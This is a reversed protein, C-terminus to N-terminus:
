PAVAQVRLYRRPNATVTTADRFELKSATNTLIVLNPTGSWTSMESSIQPTLTVDIPNASRLITATCYNNVRAVTILPGANGTLPLTGTAYELLNTRGDRDPDATDGAIAANNANIGFNTFKWQQLPRDALTITLPTPSGNLYAGALTGPSLLITEPGEALADALPTITVNATASGAAFTVTGLTAYDSGNTATGAITLNMTLPAGVLNGASRTLTASAPNLLWEAAALDTSAITVTPVFEDAGLDIVSEAIRPLADIEQEAVSSLTAPDGTNRAPSSALLHLDPTAVTASAFQPNVFPTLTDFGTGAKWSSFGYHFIGNWQWTPTNNPASSFYLNRDIVHGATPAVLAPHQIFYSDNFSDVRAYLINQRITIGSTNNQFVIEGSGTNDTDNFLLSNNLIQCNQAGGNNLANSGGLYIGGIHSLYVFNNRVICDSTLKGAAESALEIGINCHHVTNGEVTINKGGDVYIGVASRDGSYAPNTLSDINYVTNRAVLGNRAQDVAANNTTGEFGICDIGINDCDHILCNTIQFGDVNGNVSLSESAQTKLNYLECGDVIISSIPTISNTGFIAIGNANGNAPPISQIDHIKCNRIEVHHTPGNIFFGMIYASNATLSKFNRLELDQFKLYSKNRIAIMGTQANAPPPLTTGDLVVVDGPFARFTTYGAAASGSVQVSVLEAYTGAHIYVTEGPLTSTAAKTITKWPALDTGANTDLGTTRVHRDVAWSRSIGATLLLLLGLGLWCFRGVTSPFPPM